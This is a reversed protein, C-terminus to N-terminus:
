LRDVDAGAAVWSDWSVEYTQARLDRGDADRLPDSLVVVYGLSTSRAGVVHVRRLRDDKDM